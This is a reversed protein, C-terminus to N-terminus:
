EGVEPVLAQLRHLLAAVRRCHDRTLKLGTPCTGGAELLRAFEAVEGDSPPAPAPTGCLARTHVRAHEWFEAVAAPKDPMENMM